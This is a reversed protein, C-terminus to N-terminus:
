KGRSAGAGPRRAAPSRFALHAILAAPDDTIIADVGAAILRDWDEPTNATWPIVELGAAHAARVKEATVLRHQPSIIAAGAERAVSVFDREGAGYLASLRIRPALAKMAVLTRFDFSQVIVRAELRHRRVSAALLRAFEEPSPTLEPRDAFIKTEVNFQFKGLPALALVEELTPIRTGPVAKQKPFEPNARAGCDWQRLEELTLRRIVAGPKPGACIKENIVPDHSVVLVDDRTVALDLEIADTGAEIAHRFAPLTNEPLVARAGRHGHVLVRRAPQASLVMMPILM